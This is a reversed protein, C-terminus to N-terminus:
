TFNLRIVFLANQKATVYLIILKAASYFLTKISEGNRCDSVVIMNRLLTYGLGFLVQLGTRTWMSRKIRADRKQEKLVEDQALRGAQQEKHTYSQIYM